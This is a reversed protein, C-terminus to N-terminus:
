MIRQQQQKSNGQGGKIPADIYGAESTMQIHGVRENAEGEILLQQQMGKQNEVGAHNASSCM